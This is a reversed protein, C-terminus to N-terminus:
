GCKRDIKILRVQPRNAGFMAAATGEPCAGLPYRKPTQPLPPCGKPPSERANHLTFAFNNTVVTM